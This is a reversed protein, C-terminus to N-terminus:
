HFLFKYNYGVAFANETNNFNMCTLAKLFEKSFLKQKFDNQSFCILTSIPSQKKSELINNIYTDIRAMMSSDYLLLLTINDNEHIDKLSM